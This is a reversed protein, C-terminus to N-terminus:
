GKHKAEIAALAEEWHDREAKIGDPTRRDYTRKLGAIEGSLVERFTGAALAEKATDEEEDILDELLTDALRRARNHDDETVGEPESEPEPEPEPEPLPAVQSGALDTLRQTLEAVKAEAAEARQEAEAKAELAAAEAELAADAAAQELGGGQAEALQAKLQEVEAALAAVKSEIEKAVWANLEDVELVSVVEVQQKEVDKITYRGKAQALIGDNGV